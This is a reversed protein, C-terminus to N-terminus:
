TFIINLRFNEVKVIVWSHPHFLSIKLCSLEWFFKGEKCVKDPLGLLFFSYSFFFASSGLFLNAICSHLTHFDKSSVQTAPKFFLYDMSSLLESSESYSTKPSPHFHNIIKTMYSLPILSPVYSFLNTFYNSSYTKCFVFYAVQGLM